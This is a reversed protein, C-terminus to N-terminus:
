ASFGPLVDPVAAGVAAILAAREQDVAARADSGLWLGHVLQLRVSLREDFRLAVFGTMPGLLAM